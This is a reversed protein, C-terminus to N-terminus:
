ANLDVVEALGCVGCNARLHNLSASFKPFLMLFGQVLFGKFGPGL